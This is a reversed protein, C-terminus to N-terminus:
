LSFRIRICNDAAMISIVKNTTLIAALEGPSYGRQALDITISQAINVIRHIDNVKLIDKIFTPLQAYTYAALKLSHSVKLM